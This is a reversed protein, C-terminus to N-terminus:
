DEQLKDLLKQMVLTNNNVAQTISEMEKKHDERESRLESTFTEQMKETKLDGKDDRYKIYFGCAIAVAIPFGLTQVMQLITEM